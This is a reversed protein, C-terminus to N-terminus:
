QDPRPNADGEPARREGKRAQDNRGIGVAQATPQM